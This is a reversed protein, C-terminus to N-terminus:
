WRLLRGDDAWSAGCLNCRYAGTCPVSGSYSPSHELCPLEADVMAHKRPLPPNPQVLIAGTMGHTNRVLHGDSYVCLIQGTDREQVLVFDWPAGLGMIPNPDRESRAQAIDEATTSAKVDTFVPYTRGKVMGMVDHTIM